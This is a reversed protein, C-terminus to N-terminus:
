FLGLIIFLFGISGLAYSGLFFIRINQLLFLALFVIALEFFIRALEFKNGLKDYNESKHTSLEARNKIDVQEEKYRAIETQLEQARIAHENFLPNSPMTDNLGQLEIEYLREKVSKSQFFAWQNSADNKYLVSEHNANEAGFSAIAIFLVWVTTTLAIIKKLQESHSSHQHAIEIPETM